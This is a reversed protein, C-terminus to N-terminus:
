RISSIISDLLYGTSQLEDAYSGLVRGTPVVRKRLARLQM